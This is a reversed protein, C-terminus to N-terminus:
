TYSLPNKIGLFLARRRLKCSVSRYQHDLEPDYIAEIEELKMPIYQTAFTPDQKHIRDTNDNIDEFKIKKSSLSAKKLKILDIKHRTAKDGDEKTSERTLEMVINTIPQGFAKLLDERTRKTDEIVDHLLAGIIEETTGKAKFVGFAVRIPHVIYPSKSYKRLQNIESHAEEAYKLARLIDPNTAVFNFVFDHLSSDDKLSVNLLASTNELNLTM